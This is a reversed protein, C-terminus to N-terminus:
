AYYHSCKGVHSASDEVNLMEAGMIPRSDPRRHEELSAREPTGPAVVRLRLLCFTLNKEGRGEADTATEALFDTWMMVWVPDKGVCAQPLLRAFATLSASFTTGGSGDLSCPGQTSGAIHQFLNQLVPLM